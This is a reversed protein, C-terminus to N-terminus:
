GDSILELYARDLAAILSHFRPRDEGALGLFDAYRDVASWPLRGAAPVALPRGGDVKLLRFTAPRDGALSWFADWVMRLGARLRPAQGREALLAAADPDDTAVDAM